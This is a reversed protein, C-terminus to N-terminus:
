KASAACLLVFVNSRCLLFFCYVAAIINGCKLECVYQHETKVQNKVQQPRLYYYYYYFSLKYPATVHSSDSCPRRIRQKYEPFCNTVSTPDLFCIHRWCTKSRQYHLHWVFTLHYVTGPSRVLWESHGTISSHLRRPHPWEDNWPHREYPKARIWSVVWGPKEFKNYAALLRLM